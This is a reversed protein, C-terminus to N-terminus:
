AYKLLLSKFRPDNRLRKLDSDKKLHEFDDYGLEIARELAEFADDKKGMLALSCALNYRVVPEEPRLKALRRDLELGKEYLGKKTYLDALPILADVFNPDKELLGEFFVIEFEAQGQRV